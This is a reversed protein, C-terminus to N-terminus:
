VGGIAERAENISGLESRLASESISDHTVAGRLWGEICMASRWALESRSRTYISGM